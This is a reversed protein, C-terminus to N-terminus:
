DAETSDGSSVAETGQAHLWVQNKGRRKAEHLAKNAGRRLSAPNASSIGDFTDIGISVTVHASYEGSTIQMAEIRKRIRIATQVAEAPTTQPLLLLFEDGGYRAAFDTERITEKLSEAVCELVMDGFAYETSDNIAKFNDVDILLLSLPINHRQSRKFEIYLLNKFHRESLLGTKFDVSVQGELDLTRQQLARFKERTLVQLKTRHVCEEANHPRVLFDRFQLSLKQAEQLQQPDDVLLIVPVPDEERQAKELIEFEIGGAKLILPNLIITSARVDTLLRRTEAISTSEHVEFAAAELAAILHGMQDRHHNLFLVHRPSGASPEASPQASAQPKADRGADHTPQGAM